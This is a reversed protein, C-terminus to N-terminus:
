RGDGTRGQVAFQAGLWDAFVRSSAPVNVPRIHTYYPDAAFDTPPLLAPPQAGVAAYSRDRVAGSNTCNPVPALYVLVTTGPRQYRRRLTEVTETGRQEVYDRPIRCLDNLPGYPENYPAHGLDATTDRARSHRHVIATLMKPGFSSYLRLPFALMEVPHKLTFRAIEAASGHRLLMEEGEFLRGPPLHSFNLNWASFYLVILRPQTHHALYYRLPADGIVPLSGVTSPLVLSRVGLQENVLRPNIGLFASSDGFVVIDAYPTTAEFPYELAPGWQSEDWQEYSRSVVLPFAVVWGCLPLLFAWLLYRLFSRRGPGSTQTTESRSATQETIAM